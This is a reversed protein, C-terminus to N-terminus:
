QGVPPNFQIGTGNSACGAQYHYTKIGDDIGSHFPEFDAHSHWWGLVRYGAQDIARGARIVEAGELKVDAGGVEQNPALYADRAVRGKVGKPAILYGYCELPEGLVECVLRAYAYAKRLASETIYVQSILRREKPGPTADTPDEQALLQELKNKNM